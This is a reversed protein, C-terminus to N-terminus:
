STIAAYPHGEFWMADVVTYPAGPKYFRLVLRTPAPQEVLIEYGDRAAKAILEVRGGAIRVTATGGTVDFTRTFVGNAYAWGDYSSPKPKVVIPSPSAPPTAVVSSVAPSPEARAPPTSVPLTTTLLPRLGWWVASGALVTLVAWGVAYFVRRVRVNFM